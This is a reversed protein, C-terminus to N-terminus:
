LNLLSLFITLPDCTSLFSSIFNLYLQIFINFQLTWHISNETSHWPRNSSRLCIHTSLYHLSETISAFIHQYITFPNPSRLLYTNIFLSPIRHDFAFIHQYITFPNPSRLCIHTSLYHLSWSDFLFSSFFQLPSFYKFISSSYMSYPTDLYLFEKYLWM